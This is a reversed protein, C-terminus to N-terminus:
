RRGWDRFPYAPPRKAAYEPLVLERMGDIWQVVYGSKGTQRGHADVRYRGFVTVIDLAALADRLRARDTGGAKRVAAEIVQGAAYGGAAHYDPLYRHRKQYAAIFAETGPVSPVPEWQSVGMVGEADLGLQRGFEPQAPGLAFAFVRAYLRKDRAARMIALSDPLYSAGLVVDPKRQKAKVLMGEFRTTDAPYEEEFVIRLGITKSRQRVGAAVERAFPTSPYILAVRRLGRARAFNLVPDFWAAAPTYVGFLYRPRTEWPEGSSAGISVMPVGHREAVAAAARTSESSYPGILIPVQDRTILAETQKAAREASSKDDYPRLRVTRGHLGGRANVEDVWLELGRRQEESARDYPGSQSLPLGIVIDPGAASLPAAGAALLLTALLGSLFPTSFRNM